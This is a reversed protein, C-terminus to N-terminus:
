NHNPPSKWFRAFKPAKPPAALWTCLVIAAFLSYLISFVWLPLDYYILQQLWHQIFGGSYAQEGAAERLRSEWVTLPCFRGTMPKVATAVIAILHLARFWFNKIWSWHLGIGTLILIFGGVTFIVFLTHAFLLLDALFAYLEPNM